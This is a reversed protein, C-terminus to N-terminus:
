LCLHYEFHSRHERDHGAHPRLVPSRGKTAIRITGVIPPGSCSVVVRARIGLDLVVARPMSRAASMAGTGTLAAAWQHGDRHARDARAPLAVVFLPPGCSRGEAMAPLQQQIAWWAMLVCPQQKSLLVCHIISFQDGFDAIPLLMIAAHVIWPLPDLPDAIVLMRDAISPQEPRREVHEISADQTAAEARVGIVAKRFCVFPLLAATSATM